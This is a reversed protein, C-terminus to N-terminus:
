RIDVNLMYKLYTPGSTLLTHFGWTNCSDAMMLGLFPLSTFISKWPVALSSTKDLGQLHNKIYLKEEETIFPSEDPTDYFLRLWVVYWLGTIAGIVYFAGEWGILTVITGCLPYTVLVGISTGFM